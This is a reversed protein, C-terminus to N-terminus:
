IKGGRKYTIWAAVTWAGWLLVVSVLIAAAAIKPYDAALACCAAFLFVLYAAIVREM